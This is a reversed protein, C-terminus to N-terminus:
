PISLWVTIKVGNPQGPLSPVNTIDVTPHTMDPEGTELFCLGEPWVTQDAAGQRHLVIEGRICAAQAPGAGLMAAAAGAGLLAWIIGIRIAKSM